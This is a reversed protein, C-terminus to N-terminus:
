QKPQSWKIKAELQLKARQVAIEARKVSLKLQDLEEESISNNQRQMAAGRDYDQKAAAAQAEALRLQAEAQARPDDGAQRRRLEIEAVALDVKAVDLEQQSLGGSKHAQQLRDFRSKKAALVSEADMIELARLQANLAEVEQPPAAPKTPTSGTVPPQAPYVLQDVKLRKLLEEQNTQVDKLERKLRENEAKLNQIDRAEASSPSYSSKLPLLEAPATDTDRAPRADPQPNPLARSLPLADPKAIEVALQLYLTTANKAGKPSREAIILV